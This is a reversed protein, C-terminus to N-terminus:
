IGQTLHKKELDVLVIINNKGMIRNVQHPTKRKNKYTSNGKCTPFLDWKTM